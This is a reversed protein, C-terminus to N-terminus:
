VLVRGRNGLKSEVDHIVSTIAPVTEIEPRSKVTVNILAQPFVKMIKALESLPKQEKKM